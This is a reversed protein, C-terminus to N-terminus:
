SKTSSGCGTVGQLPSSRGCAPPWPATENVYSARSERSGTPWLAQQAPPHPQQQAVCSARPEDVLVVTVDGCKCQSRDQTGLEDQRRPHAM